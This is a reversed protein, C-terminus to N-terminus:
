KTFIKSIFEFVTEHAGTKFFVYIAYGACFIGAVSLFKKFFALVMEGVMEWINQFLWKLGDWLNVACFKIIKPIQRILIITLDLTICLGTLPCFILILYSVKVSWHAHIIMYNKIWRATLYFINSGLCDLDIGEYEEFSYWKQPHQTNTNIVIANEM